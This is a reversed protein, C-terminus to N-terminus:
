SESDADIRDNTRLGATHLARVLVRYDFPQRPDKLGEGAAVLIARPFTHKKHNAWVASVVAIGNGYHGGAPAPADLLTNGLNPVRLLFQVYRSSFEDGATEVHVDTSKGVETVADRAMNDLMTPDNISAGMPTERLLRNRLGSAAEEVVDFDGLVPPALGFAKNNAHALDRANKAHELMIQARLLETSPDLVGLEALATRAHREADGTPPDFYQAPSSWALEVRGARERLYCGEPLVAPIIVFRQGTINSLVDPKVLAHAFVDRYWALERADDTALPPAEDLEVRGGEHEHEPWLAREFEVALRDLQGLQDSTPRERTFLVLGKYAIQLAGIKAELLAATAGRILAGTAEAQAGHVVQGLSTTVVVRWRCRKIAESDFHTSPSTASQDTSEM